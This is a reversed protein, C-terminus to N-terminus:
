EDRFCICLIKELMTRERVVQRCIKKDSINEGKVVSELRETIENCLAVQNQDRLMKTAENHLNENLM